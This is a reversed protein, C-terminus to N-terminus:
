PGRSNRAGGGVYEKWELGGNGKEGERAGESRVAGLALKKMDWAGRAGVGRQGSSGLNM